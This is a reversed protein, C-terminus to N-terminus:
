RRRTHRCLLRLQNHEYRKELDAAAIAAQALAIPHDGSYHGPSIACSWREMRKLAELLQANVTQAPPQWGECDCVYRDANHSANRDFGHPADPHDKCSPEVTQPAPPATHPLWKELEERCAAFFEIRNASGDAHIDEFGKHKSCLMGYTFGDNFQGEIQILAQEVTPGLKTFTHNDNMYHVSIPEVEVPNDLLALAQYAHEGPVDTWNNKILNLADRVAAITEDTYTKM